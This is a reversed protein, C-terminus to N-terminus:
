LNRLGKTFLLSLPFPLLHADGGTDTWAAIEANSIAYQWTRLTIICNRWKIKDWFLNHYHEKSKMRVWLRGLVEWLLLLHAGKLLLAPAESNFPPPQSLYKGRKEGRLSQQHLKEKGGWYEWDGASSLVWSGNKFVQHAPSMELIYDSFTM